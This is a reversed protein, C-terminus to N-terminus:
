EKRDRIFVDTAANADGAVLLASTSFWSVHRANRTISTKSCDEDAQAGGSSVSALTTTGQTLDVVIVDVKGNADGAVLTTAFSEFVVAKGNGSIHPRTSHGDAEAGAPGLSVRRTSAAKRDRVFIDSIGNTDGEVLDNASSDFAVYRGNSSISASGCGASGEAGSTNPSAWSLAGTKLDRVYVDFAVGRDGAVLGAESLIVMYRGNGSLEPALSNRSVQNGQEDLSTRTTLGTKRDHLFCDQRANTDGEVLNTASSDFAIWRGNDSVSPNLSDADGQTGDTAVSVRTTVGAKMDRVFIDFKSNTDGEVLNTANSEWVVFRGNRSVTPFADYGDSLLGASSASALRTTDKKVDRLYINTSGVIPDAADFNGCSSQFVVFRGTPSITGNYSHGNGQAGDPALSALTTVGAEAPAELVALALLLSPIVSHPRCHADLM